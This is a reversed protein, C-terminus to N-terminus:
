VSVRTRLVRRKVLGLVTQRHRALGSRRIMDYILELGALATHGHPFVRVTCHSCALYPRGRRDFKWGGPMGCVICFAFDITPMAETGARTQKVAM